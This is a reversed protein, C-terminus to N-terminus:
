YYVYIPAEIESVVTFKMDFANDRNPDWNKWETGSETYADSVVNIPNTNVGDYRLTLGQVKESMVYLTIGLSMFLVGFVGFIIMTSGFSPVPRWAPLMQQKFKSAKLKEIKDEIRILDEESVEM